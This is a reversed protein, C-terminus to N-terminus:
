LYIVESIENTGLHKTRLYYNFLLLVSFTTYHDYMILIYVIGGPIQIKKKEWKASPRKAKPICINIWCMLCFCNLNNILPAWKIQYRPHKRHMDSTMQSVSRQKDNKNRYFLNSLSNNMSTSLETPTQCHQPQTMGGKILVALLWNDMGLHFVVSIENGTLKINKRSEKENITIAKTLIFSRVSVKFDMHLAKKLFDTFSSWIMALDLFSVKRFPLSNSLLSWMTIRKKPINTLM